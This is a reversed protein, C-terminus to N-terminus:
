ALNELIRRVPTPLGLRELQTLAHWAETGADAVMPTKEKVESYQPQILLQFHTFTHRVPQLSRRSDSRIAHTEYWHSLAADDAFEPLSWLGGWIGAPPRKQLLVEGKGNVVVPMVVERLPLAQRPKKGPFEAVRDQDYALCGANVPCESCRPKSRSCLTAGLDMIAQTYDATRKKPTTVEALQWLRQEVERKGPWGEVAHFRSLVRKVNGDLIPLHQDCALALIAGATSRGIGPLAMVTELQLPFEGGHEDHIVQAATHLNRARSYYGLGSWHALVEDLSADALKVVDPFRAMFREFYPIVTAVQTQQLMVESVWVRYPTPQQQWPLDHRGHRDYWALLRPAFDNM